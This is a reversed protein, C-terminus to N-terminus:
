GRTVDRHQVTIARGEAIREALARAITVSRHRGGTCGIAITLRTKGEREYLPLLHGLLDALREILATAEPRGLVSDRVAADEGTLLRLAPDFYPNPLYRVDFVLDADAPLGHKFGFSVIRVQMQARGGGFHEVLARRLEHAYLHTTDIVLDARERLPGLRERELAIGAQVDGEPSLPHPRRTESFRRVIADDSADLFLVELAYPPRDLAEIMRETEPVLGQLRMHIGIAARAVEPAEACLSAFEAALPTPLNDVTFFGLDQFVSIATSKGAGSVGTVVVIPLPTV